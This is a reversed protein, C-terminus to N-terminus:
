PDPSFDASPDFSGPRMPDHELDPATTPEETWLQLWDLTDSLWPRTADPTATEPRRIWRIIYQGVESFGDRYRRRREKPPLTFVKKAQQFLQM